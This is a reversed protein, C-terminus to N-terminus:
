HAAGAVQVAARQGAIRGLTIATLLGNGAIYGTCGPGSVGRAAGGGAFLNPFPVGDRRLVRANADVVLGGQTHFLAGNVKVARFPPQLPVTNTFLRGFPCRTGTDVLGAVRAMTRALAAAPVHMMQALESEDAATLVAGAELADRYDQFELMAAHIREDFVDWAFGGRQAVVNVAQESYGLSEDSFRQGDGNVQYGGNIILPWLIPIRHGAALGGHGQYAGEDRIAAGLARGWLLADGQNGPHGYYEAAGIDPILEAVMARNGGFGSCALVITNCGVTEISGDPHEIRVGHIRGQDDAYLAAVRSDTLVDAGSQAVARALGTMLETGTRNPTGHMRMRSHGPYLFSDIFTLPVGHRDALWDITAGSEQALTLAIVGDTQGQSKKLIDFAFVDASDVVGAARQQRSGAGPILGTSMETSGATRADREVVLVDAGGDRAALAASLGCGGGGVIIIPVTFEFVPQPDAPLRESAGLAAAGVCYLM